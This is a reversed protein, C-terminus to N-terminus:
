FLCPLVVSRLKPLQLAFRTGCTNSTGDDLTKADPVTGVGPFWDRANPERIGGWHVTKMADHLFPLAALSRIVVSSPCNTLLQFGPSEPIGPLLRHFLPQHLMQWGHEQGFELCLSLSGKLSDERRRM